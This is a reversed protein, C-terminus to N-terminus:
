FKLPRGGKSPVYQKHWARVERSSWKRGRYKYDNLVVDEVPEPFGNTERRQYWTAVQQRTVGLIRAAQAMTVPKDDKKTM